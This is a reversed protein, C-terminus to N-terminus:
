GLKTYVKKSTNANLNVNEADTIILANKQHISALLLLCVTTNQVITTTINVNNYQVM